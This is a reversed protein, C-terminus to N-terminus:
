KYYSFKTLLLKAAHRIKQHKELSFTYFIEVIIKFYCEIFPKIEHFALPAIKSSIVSQNWSLSSSWGVTFDFRENFTMNFNNNFHKFIKISIGDFIQWAANVFNLKWSYDIVAVLLKFTPTELIKNNHTFLNISNSLIKWIIKRYSM